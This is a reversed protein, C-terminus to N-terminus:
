NDEYPKKLRLKEAEENFYAYIRKYENQGKIEADQAQRLLKNDEETDYNPNNGECYTILNSSRVQALRLFELLYSHADDAIIPPIINSLENSWNEYEDLLLNYYVLLEENDTASESNENINQINTTHQNGIKEVKEVYSKWNNLDSNYRDVENSNTQYHSCSILTLCFLPILIFFIAIKKIIM